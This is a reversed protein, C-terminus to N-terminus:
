KNYEKTKPQQQNGWVSRCSPRTPKLKTNSRRSIRLGIFFGILFSILVPGAIDTESIIIPDM